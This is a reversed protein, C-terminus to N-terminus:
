LVGTVLAQLGVTWSLVSLCGRAAHMDHVTLSAAQSIVSPYISENLRQALKAMSHGSAEHAWTNSVCISNVCLLELRWVAVLM